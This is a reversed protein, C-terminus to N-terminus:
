GIGKNISCSTKFEECTNEIAEVQKNTRPSAFMGVDSVRAIPRSRSHQEITEYANQLSDDLFIPQPGIISATLRSGKQHLYLDKLYNGNQRNWVKEKWLNFAAEETIVHKKVISTM